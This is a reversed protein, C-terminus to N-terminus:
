LAGEMMLRHVKKVVKKSIIGDLFLEMQDESHTDTGSCDYMGERLLWEAKYQVEPGYAGVLSPLNLQLLVGREKWRRYDDKEMYQYREPHALLPDYGNKRISDIIAEMNMPPIYYSTEVLLRTGDTGIPLVEDAGLRRLFLGDMMHEAALHLTIHGTYEAMVGEFTKKLEEPMNPVDEMIHPILWVEKVGVTEWEDLIQMTEDIEQVGDDVGPLLHCHCDRFGELLGCDRVSVKNSILWM